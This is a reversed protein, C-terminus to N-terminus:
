SVLGCRLSGLIDKWMISFYLYGDDVLHPVIGRIHGDLKARKILTALM